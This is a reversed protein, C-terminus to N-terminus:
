SWVDASYRGKSQLKKIYDEADSTSMDGKTTLIKVLMAHVDRAM